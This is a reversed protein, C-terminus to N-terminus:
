TEVNRTTAIFALPGAALGALLTISAGLMMVFAAGSEPQAMVAFHGGIIFLAAFLIVGVLTATGRNLRMFKYILWILAFCSIGGVLLCSLIAIGIQTNPSM